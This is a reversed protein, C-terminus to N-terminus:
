LNKTNENNKWFMKENIIKNIEDEYCNFEFNNKCLNTFVMSMMDEELNILFLINWIIKM